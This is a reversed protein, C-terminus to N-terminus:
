NPHRMTLPPIRYRITTRGRMTKPFYRWTTACSTPYMGIDAGAINYWWSLIVEAPSLSSPDTNDDDDDGDKEAGITTEERREEELMAQQTQYDLWEKSITFLLTEIKNQANDEKESNRKNYSDIMQDVMDPTSKEFYYAEEAGMHKEVHERYDQHRIPNMAIVPTQPSLMRFLKYYTYNDGIYQSQSVIIAFRSFHDVADPVLTVKWVPLNKGILQVAPPVKVAFDACIDKYQVFHTDRKLPIEGPEVVSFISPATDKREPDYWLKINLDGPKQALRDFNFTARCCHSFRNDIM